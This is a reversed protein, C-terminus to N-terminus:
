KRNIICIELRKELSGKMCLIFIVDYVNFWKPLFYITLLLYFVTSGPYQGSHM